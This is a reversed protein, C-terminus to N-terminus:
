THADKTAHSRPLQAFTKHLPDLEIEKKLVPYHNKKFLAIFQEAHGWKAKYYYEIVYPKDNAYQQQSATSQAQLDSAVPFPVIAVTVLLPVALWRLRCPITIQM